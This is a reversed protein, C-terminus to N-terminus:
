GVGRGTCGETRANNFVFVEIWMPASTVTSHIVCGYLGVSCSAPAVSEIVARYRWLLDCLMDITVYM